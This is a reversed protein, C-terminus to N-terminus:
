SNSKILRKIINKGSTKLILLVLRQASFLKLESNLIITQRIVDTFGHKFGYYIFYELVSRDVENALKLTQLMKVYSNKQIVRFHRNNMQFNGTMSVDHKRYHHLVETIIKARYGKALLRLYLENDESYILTEDWKNADFVSAKFLPACSNIAMGETFYRKADKKELVEEKGYFPADMIKDPSYKGMFSGLKSVVFDFSPNKKLYDVKTEIKHTLMIDDDDFFQIFQGQAIEIGYNRSGPLGKKHKEPRKYYKFRADKKQWRAAIEETNDISGDDIILCEWNIYSQAKISELTEEIFHARNFTAMIISVLPTNVLNVM